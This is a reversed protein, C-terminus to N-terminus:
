DSISQLSNDDGSLEPLSCQSTTRSCLLGARCPCFGHYAEQLELVLGNPYGLTMERPSNQIRCWDGVNGRPACRPFSYREFGVLCCADPGCGSSAKCEPLSPGAYAQRDTWMVVILAVVTASFMKRYICMGSHTPLFFDVSALCTSTM